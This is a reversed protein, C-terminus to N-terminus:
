CDFQFVIPFTYRILHEAKSVRNFFVIRNSKIGYYNAIKIINEDALDILQDNNEITIDNTKRPTKSSLLWFISTPLSQLINMWSHITTFDLKEGKNFNCLIIKNSYIQKLQKIKTNM